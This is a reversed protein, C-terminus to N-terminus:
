RSETWNSHVVHAFIFKAEVNYLFTTETGYQAGLSRGGQNNWAEVVAKNDVFADVRANFLKDRFAVLARDVASAEKAAIGSVFQDDTWYDSIEERHPTLLIAGWGTVSADTAISVRVHREDRWPLPTDWDELFLWSTLFRKM